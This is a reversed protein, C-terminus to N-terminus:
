RDKARGPTAKKVGRDLTDASLRVDLDVIGQRTHVKVGDVVPALVEAFETNSQLLLNVLGRAADLMEAVSEATRADATHIRVSGRLDQDVDLDGSFALVKDAIPATDQGRALQKKLEPPALAVFWLPHRGDAKDLLAQLDPNLAAPPRGAGKAAAIVLDRSASVLITEPGIAASFQSVRGIKKEYVALGDEGHVKCREPDARAAAEAAAREAAPDFRGHVNLLVKEARFGSAAVVVRDVADPRLCAPLLAAQLDAKGEARRALAPLVHDKVLPAALVRRVDLSAVATADAPIYPDVEAAPAALALLAATLTVGAVATLPSPPM